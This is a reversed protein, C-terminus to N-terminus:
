KSVTGNIIRIIVKFSTEMLFGNFDSAMVITMQMAVKTFQEM